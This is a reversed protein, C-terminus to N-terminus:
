KNAVCKFGARKLLEIQRLLREVTCGEDIACESVAIEAGNIGSISCKIVNVKPLANYTMQVKSFTIGKAKMNIKLPAM